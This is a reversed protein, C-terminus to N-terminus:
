PRAGDSSTDAEAGSPVSENTQWRLSLGQIVLFVGVLAGYAGLIGVLITSSTLTGSIKEIGGLQKSYDTPVVLYAVALVLTIIGLVRWDRALGTRHRSRIGMVLEVVGTVVAWVVVLGVLVLLGKSSLALAVVGAALTVFGQVAALSRSPADALWARSGVWVVLGAVVSTAGFTVLGLMSSHNNVFTIVMGLVLAPVARLIPVPWYRADSAPTSQLATM